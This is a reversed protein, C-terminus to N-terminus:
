DFELLVITVDDSWATTGTLMELKDYLFDIPKTENKIAASVMQAFGDYGIMEGDPLMAEAWGDTYFVVASNDGVKSQMSPLKMKVNAGLPFANMEFFDFSGDPMVHVLRPHAAGSLSFEGTRTDIRMLMISSMRLRKLIPTLHENIIRILQDPTKGPNKVVIPIASSIMAVVIAAALGHGTVDGIFVYVFDEDFPDPFFDFFDGGVQEMMVSKGEIRLRGRELRNSPFLNEQLAQALSLQDLGEKVQGFLTTLALVEGVPDRIVPLSRGVKFLPEIASELDYVPHLLFRRLIYIGLSIWVLGLVVASYYSRAVRGCENYVESLPLSRAIILHDLSESSKLWYLNWIGEESKAIFRCWEGTAELGGAIAVMDKPAARSAFDLGESDRNFIYTASGDTATRAKDILSRVLSFSFHGSRWHLLVFNIIDATPDGLICAFNYFKENGTAIRVIKGLDAVTENVYAEEDVGAAAAMVSMVGQKEGQSLIVECNARVRNCTQVALGSMFKDIAADNPDGIRERDPGRLYEELESTTLQERSSRQLLTQYVQEVKGGRNNVRRLFWHRLHEPMAAVYAYSPRYQFWTPSLKEGTASFIHLYGVNWKGCNAEECWARAAEKSTIPQRTSLFETIEQEKVSTYERFETEMNELEQSLRAFKRHLINSSESFMELNGVLVLGLLPLGIAPGLFLWLGERLSKSDIEFATTESRYFSVLWVFSLLVFALLAIREWILVFNSFASRFVLLKDEFNVAQYVFRSDHGTGIGDPGINWYSLDTQWAVSEAASLKTWLSPLEKQVRCFFAEFIKHWDVHQKEFFLLYAYQRNEATMLGQCMWWDNRPLPLSYFQYRRPMTYLLHVPLEIFGADITEKEDMLQILSSSFLKQLLSGFKGSLAPNEENQASLFLYPRSIGHEELSLLAKKRWDAVSGVSEVSKITTQWVLSLSSERSKIRQLKEVEFRLMESLVEREFTRRMQSGQVIGGWILVAFPLWILFGTLLRIGKNWNM